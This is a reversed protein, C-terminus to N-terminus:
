HCNLFDKSFTVTSWLNDIADGKLDAAVFCQDTSLKCAFKETKNCTWNDVDDQATFLKNSHDNPIMFDGLEIQLVVDGNMLYSNQHLYPYTDTIRGMISLTKQGMIILEDKENDRLRRVVAPVNVFDHDQCKLVYRPTHLLSSCYKQVWFVPSVKEIDEKDVGEILDFQIIDGQVKAEESILTKWMPDQDVGMIFLVMTKFKM